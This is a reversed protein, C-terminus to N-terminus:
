RPARSPRALREVVHTAAVLGMTATVTIISGFGTACNLGTRPGRDPKRAAVGGDAAPYRPQESSYVCPVDFRRKPNRTFGYRARLLKRTRALLPDQVARTLDAIRIRLPDTVGGAGGVTVLRRKNRKCHAIIAAKARFSDATDIVADFHAALLEAVNDPTVRDDVAHVRCAPHIAAIREAMVAVKPRGITSSLAHVQRNVNSEVVIDLDVLTLAGIGSRALAETAWSGVGGVGIVCVHAAAFRVAADAGYVRSVGTFRREIDQAEAM